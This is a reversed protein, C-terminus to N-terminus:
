WQLPEESSATRSVGAVGCINVAAIRRMTSLLRSMVMWILPRLTISRMGSSNSIVAMLRSLEASSRCLSEAGLALFHHFLHVIFRPGEWRSRSGDGQICYVFQGHGINFDVGVPHNGAGIAGRPLHTRRILTFNDASVDPLERRLVLGIEIAAGEKGHHTGTLFRRNGATSEKAIACEASVFQMTGQYAICRAPRHAHTSGREIHSLRLFSM